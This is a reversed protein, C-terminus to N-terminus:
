AVEVRIKGRKQAANMEVRMDARHEQRMGKANQLLKHLKGVNCALSSSLENKDIRMVDREREAKRVVFEMSKVKAEAATLVM